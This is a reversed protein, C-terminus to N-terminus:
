RVGEGERCREPDFDAADIRRATEFITRTLSTIAQFQKTDKITLLLEINISARHYNLTLYRELLSPNLQGGVVNRIEARDFENLSRVATFFRNLNEADQPDLPM